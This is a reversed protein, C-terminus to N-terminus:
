RATLLDYPSINESSEAKPAKSLGKIVVRGPAANISSKASLIEDVPAERHKNETENESFM